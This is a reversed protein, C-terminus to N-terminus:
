GEILGTGANDQIDGNTIPESCYVTGNLMPTITYGLGDCCAPSVFYTTTTNDSADIWEIVTTNGFYNGSPYYNCGVDENLQNVADIIKILKVKVSAGSGVQFNEITLVRWYADKIFISDNFQFQAIDIEDLMFYAVLIRSSTNYLQSIHESWYLNYFTNYLSSSYSFPINGSGFNFSQGWRLSKTNANM